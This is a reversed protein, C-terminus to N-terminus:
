IRRRPMNRKRWCMRQQERLLSDDPLESYYPEFLGDLLASFVFTINELLPPTYQTEYRTQRIIEGPATYSVPVMKTASEEANRKIQRDINGFSFRRDIESGKFAYGNKEFSVGQIENTNGKFKPQIRVGQKYVAKIFEEGSKSKPLAFSVARHIEYKTKDPEKLRNRNVHTKDKGFTLGYKEKLKKTVQGNRYFDNRDSILKGDNGIRNYVIHCHPHLADNHRVIIYQTNGIGMERLYEQALGTLAQDSLRSADEPSYSLSIHGVPKVIEPKLRCQTEFSRIIYQVSGLLVGSAFLLQARDKGLVYNVCGKFSGGKTIKGIM